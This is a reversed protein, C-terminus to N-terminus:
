LESLDDVSAIQEDGPARLELRAVREELLRRSADAHHRVLGTEALLRATLQRLDALNGALHQVELPPMEDEDFTPELIALQDRTILPQPELPFAGPERAARTGVISELASKRDNGRCRAFSALGYQAGTTSNAAAKHAAAFAHLTPGGIRVPPDLDHFRSQIAAFGRIIALRARSPLEVLPHFDITKTRDCGMVDKVTRKVAVHMARLAQAFPILPTLLGQRPVDLDRSFEPVLAPLGLLWAIKADSLMPADEGALYLEQIVQRTETDWTCRPLDAEGERIIGCPLAHLISLAMRMTFAGALEWTDLPPGHHPRHMEERPLYERM